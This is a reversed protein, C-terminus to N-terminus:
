GRRGNGFVTEITDLIERARRLGLEAIAMRLRQEVDEETLKSPLGGVRRKRAPDATESPRRDVKNAAAARLNYVHNVSIKIEQKAAAEVIEKASMSEPQSRIFDAKAGFRPKPKLHAHM